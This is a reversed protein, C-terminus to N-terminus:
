LGPVYTETVAVGAPLLMDGFSAALSNTAEKLGEQMAALSQSALEM